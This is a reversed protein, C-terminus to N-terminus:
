LYQHRDRQNIEVPPDLNEGEKIKFLISYKECTEGASVFDLMLNGNIYSHYHILFLLM